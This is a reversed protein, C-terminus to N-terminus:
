RGPIQFPSFELSQGNGSQLSVPSEGPNQLVALVEWSDLQTATSPAAAVVQGINRGDERLLDAGVQIAAPSVGHHLQRKLTGRYHARAVIEQGLYCGKAFDVGGLNHLNFMQPLYINATIDQVWALGERCDLEQWVAADSTAESIDEQRWLEFRDSNVQQQIQGPGPTGNDGFMGFCQWQGSADVLEAKSFVIYKSLFTMTDQVRSRHMRLLLGDEIEAIRFNTIMRGQLNCIAGINGTDSLKEVDCTTYGQMFPKTDKGRVALFGFQSLRIVNKM